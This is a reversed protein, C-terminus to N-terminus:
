HGPRHTMERVEGIAKPDAAYQAVMLLLWGVMVTGMLAALWRAPRILGACLHGMGDAVAGGDAAHPKAPDAEAATKWAMMPRFHHYYAMLLTCNLVMSGSGMLFARLRFSHGFVDILFVPVTVTMAVVLSLPVLRNALLAIGTVVEIGKGLHFMMGNEIMAGAIDPPPLYDIFDSMSPYPTIIKFFWNTGNLLYVLGLLIRLYDTLSKIM